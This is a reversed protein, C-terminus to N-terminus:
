QNYWALFLVGSKVRNILGKYESRSVAPCGWSMGIPDFAPNAYDSGHIVVARERLKSNSKEIGDIRLSLGNKGTYTEATIFAGLSSMHSDVTNSFITAYGTDKPDSGEGHAVLMKEVAGSKMDIVFLRPNHSYEHYNIVGLYEPRKLEGKLRDYYSLALELPRPPIENNPDVFAYKQRIGEIAQIQFDLFVDTQPLQYELPVPDHLLSEALVARQAYDFHCFPIRLDCLTSQANLSAGLCLGASLFAIALTLGQLFYKVM